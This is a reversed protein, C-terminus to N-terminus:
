CGCILGRKHKRESRGGETDYKNKYDLAM